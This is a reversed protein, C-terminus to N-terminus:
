DLLGIHPTFQVASDVVHSKRGISAEAIVSKAQPSGDDSKLRRVRSAFLGKEGEQTWFEVWEDSRLVRFGEGKIVSFHVFVDQGHEDIIFGFGRRTDFWKVKGRHLMEPNSPSVM